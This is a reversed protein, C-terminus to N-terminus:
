FHRRAPRTAGRASFFIAGDPGIVYFTPIGTVLYEEAVADGDTTVMGTAVELAGFSSIVRIM